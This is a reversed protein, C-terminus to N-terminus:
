IEITLPAVKVNWRYQSAFHTVCIVDIRLGRGLEFDLVDRGNRRIIPLETVACDGRDAVYQALRLVL